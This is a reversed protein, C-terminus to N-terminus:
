REDHQRDAHPRNHHHRAGAKGLHVTVVARRLDHVVGNDFVDVAHFDDFYEAPVAIGIFPIFLVHLCVTIKRQVPVAHAPRPHRHIRAHEDATRQERQWEAAHEDDVAPRLKGVQNQYKAKGEPQAAREHLRHTENGRECLDIALDLFQFLGQVGLRQFALAVDKRAPAVRRHELVHGKGILVLVDNM